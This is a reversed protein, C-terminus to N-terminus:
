KPPETWSAFGPEKAGMPNVGAAKWALGETYARPSIIRDVNRGFEDFGSTENQNFPESREWGGPLKTWQGLYWMRILNRTLPGWVRDALLAEIGLGSGFYKQRIAHGLVLALEDFYARLLGTAQLEAASFGTLAASLQSFQDLEQDQGKNDALERLDYTTYRPVPYPIFQQM